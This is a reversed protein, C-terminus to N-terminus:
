IVGAFVGLLSKVRNRWWAKHGNPRTLMSRQQGFDVVRRSLSLSLSLFLYPSPSFSLSLCLFLSLSLPLPAPTPVQTPSPTPSPTTCQIEVGPNGGGVACNGGAYATDCTPWTPVTTSTCHGVYYAATVPDTISVFVGGSMGLMACIIEYGNDNRAFRHACIPRWTSGDFVEAQGVNDAIGGTLRVDGM